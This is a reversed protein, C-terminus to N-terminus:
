ADRLKIVKDRALAEIEAAGFGLEALVEGTQAGLRQPPLRVDAAEGDYLVPHNLLTVPAGTEGAGAVTVLSKMHKVQPDGAIERYDQVPAHWIRLPEMRAIWEASTAMALKQAILGGIEDQKTWSDKESYKGLRPEGVAEALAQLPSLSLAMHGDKTAYVGYPAAYYWGAVHAHAHIASPKAPANLWAVLSEAQLDLASQMLSSDVRCGQGTRQRRVIAALIGMAFLAAGHHDIVSAGAPRPGTSAQGTIAMMGFLAQALLDQGPKDVYPGDPGYGSASAYILGPKRERLTAYGLGLKEMVGPRFNEAVVDATDVLRLAIERGTESKLDIAVSRKNRNACLYLASQGDPWIDGGSWHRQWAGEINEVAVVDAGLDSLMQIGMPGLLFHNFSVVRIGSLLDLMGIRAGDSYPSVTRGALRL